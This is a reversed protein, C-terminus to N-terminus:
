YEGPPVPGVTPVASASPTPDAAVAPAPTNAAIRQGALFLVVLLLVAVLGGAVSMLIRQVRPLPVREQAVKPRDVVVLESGGSARPPLTPILADEYEVFASDGFLSDLPSAEVGEDQPVDLGIPHAGLVETVGDIAPDVPAGFGPFEQRALGAGGFAVTPAPDNPVYPDRHGPTAVTPTDWGPPGAPTPVVPPEPAAGGPSLGWSFGGGQVPAPPAAPTVPPPSYPEDAFFPARPAPPAPEVPPTPDAPRAPQQRSSMGRRRPAKEPEEEGFQSALWDAPDFDDAM